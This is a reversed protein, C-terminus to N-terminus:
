ITQSFLSEHNLNKKLVEFFPKWLSIYEQLGAIEVQYNYFLNVFSNPIKYQEPIENLFLDFVIENLFLDSVPVKDLIYQPLNQGEFDFLVPVNKPDKYFSVWKELLKLISLYYKNELYFTQEDISSTRIIM